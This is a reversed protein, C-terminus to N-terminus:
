NPSSKTLTSLHQLSKPLHEQIAAQGFSRLERFSCNGWFTIFNKLCRIDEEDSVICFLNIPHLSIYSNVEFACNRSHQETNTQIFTNYLVIKNILSTQLLFLRAQCAEKTKTCTGFALSLFLSALLDAENAKRM